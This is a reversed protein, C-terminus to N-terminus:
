SLPVWSYWIKEYSYLVFNIYVKIKYFTVRLAVFNFFPEMSRLLRNIQS